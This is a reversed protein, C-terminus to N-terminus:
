TTIMYTSILPFFRFTTFVATKEDRLFRFNKRGEGISPVDLGRKPGPDLGRDWHAQDKTSLGPTLDDTFSKALSRPTTIM